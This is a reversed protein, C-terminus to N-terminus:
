ARLGEMAVHGLNEFRIQEPIFATRVTGTPGNRNKGIILEAIGKDESDDNYYEDRYIFMILDADQELSGSDRLDSNNPRKNPRSEVSRNLQSLALVPCDMEKSLAKLSASIEAVELNRNERKQSSHMLQLYDIVIFGPKGFQRAARRAKSRLKLPTMYCDDDIILRGRLNNITSIAEALKAWGEGDLKGARLKQMDLKGVLAALRYAIQKSPMELSYFQVTQEKPLTDLAAQIFKLCLGTKGMSPRAALLNLGTFWGGILDNLDTLGTDLGLISLGNQAALDVEGLVEMMVAHLDTFDNSAESSLAFLEREVTELVDESVAEKSSALRTCDHGIRILHRLQSRERVIDRYAEINATSPTNNCLEGVYALFENGGLKRKIALESITVVDFPENNESLEQILKFFQQNNHQYFDSPILTGAILDWTSNNLVLGGLVAQEAEISHPPQTLALKRMM